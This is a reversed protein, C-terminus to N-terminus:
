EGIKDFFLREFIGSSSAVALNEKSYRNYKTSYYINYKVFVLNTIIRVKGDDTLRVRVSWEGTVLQPKTIFAGERKKALVVWASISEPKHTSDDEYSWNVAARDFTLFGSAKDIVKVSLNNSACFDIVRQWASDISTGPIILCYENTYNGKLPFLKNGCSHCCFIIFALVLIRFCNAKKIEM